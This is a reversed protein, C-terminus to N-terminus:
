KKMNFTEFIGILQNKLKINEGIVKDALAYLENTLDRLEQKSLNKVDKRIVGMSETIDVELVRSGQESTRAPLGLLEDASVDLVRAMVYLLEATVQIEGREYKSVLNYSYTKGTAETLM